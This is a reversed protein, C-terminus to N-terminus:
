IWMHFLETNIKRQKILSSLMAGELNLQTTALLLIEVRYYLHITNM